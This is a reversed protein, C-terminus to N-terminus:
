QGRCTVDVEYDNEDVFRVTVDYYDAYELDINDTWDDNIELEYEYVSGPNSIDGDPTERFYDATTGETLDAEYLETYINGTAQERIIIDVPVPSIATDGSNRLYMDIDSEDCTIAEMSIGGDMEGMEDDAQDMFEDQLQTMWIWAGGAAAVTMMLLLLVAIVPTVGKSSTKFSNIFKDKLGKFEM